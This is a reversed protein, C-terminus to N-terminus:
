NSCCSIIKGKGTEFLSHDFGDYFARIKYGVLSSIETFSSVLETGEGLDLKDANM